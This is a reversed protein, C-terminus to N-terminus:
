FGKERRCREIYDRRCIQFDRGEKGECAKSAPALCERAFAGIGKKRTKRAM